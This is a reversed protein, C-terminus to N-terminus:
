LTPNEGTMLAILATKATAASTAAQNLAKTTVEYIEALDADIMVRQGRIVLIKMEIRETPIIDSM